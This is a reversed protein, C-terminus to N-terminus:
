NKNQLRGRGVVYLGVQYYAFHLYSYPKRKRFERVVTPDPYRMNPPLTKAKCERVCKGKAAYVLFQKILPNDGGAYKKVVEQQTKSLDVACLWVLFYLLASNRECM